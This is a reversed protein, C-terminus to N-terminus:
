ALVAVAFVAGAVMAAVGIFFSLEDQSIELNRLSTM